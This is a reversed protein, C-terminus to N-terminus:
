FVVLVVSPCSSSVFILVQVIACAAQLANSCSHLSFCKNKSPACSAEVGPGAIRPSVEHGRLRMRVYRVVTPEWFHAVEVLKFCMEPKSLLSQSVFVRWTGLNLAM